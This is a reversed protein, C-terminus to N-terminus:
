RHAPFQLVRSGRRIPPGTREDSLNRRALVEKSSEILLPLVIFLDGVMFATILAAKAPGLVDSYPIPTLAAVLGPLIWFAILLAIAAYTILYIQIREIQAFGLTGAAVASVFFIGYPTLRVVFRTARSLAAGVVALLDLVVQRRDVGILAVGTFISFLVVAPVVNNALSHFPNAPIYLDVFSFAPRQEVLAASFFSGTQIPPFVIPFLMAYGLGVGWLLILISGARLGLRRAEQLNLSGLSSILSVVLYPLVMMQLLKVFGDALIELPAVREGLFLGLAAGATLGILLKKTLSM